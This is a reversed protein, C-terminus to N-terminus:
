CPLEVFRKMLALGFRHSKEPHFQVGLINGRSLAATVEYGHFATALVDEPHKCVAHFSHVFYFRQEGENDMILPNPKVVKVTNWGMHPIKLQSDAPFKFKRVEADIWRLGPLVGEESSNCLLQMGLCIGLVPIKRELAAHQLEPEWGSDRICSMGHDFAGVGALIVKDYARLSAPDHVIEACGGVKEVMKVVSSFNGCPLGPVAIKMSIKAVVTRCKLAVRETGSRTKRM